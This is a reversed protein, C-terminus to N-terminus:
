AHRKAIHKHVHVSGRLGLKPRLQHFRPLLSPSNAKPHIPHSFGQFSQERKQARQKKPAPCDKGICCEMLSGPQEGINAGDDKPFTYAAGACPSFFPSAPGMDNIRQSNQCVNGNGALIDPFACEQDFLEINCGTVATGDISCTIPVSYGDVYSVDIDGKGPGYYSGEIKSNDSHHDKGISIRGAWGSPVSYSASDVIGTPQPNGVFGPAGENCGFSISLPEGYKNEIAITLDGSGGGYSPDPLPVVPAPTIVSPIIPSPGDQPIPLRQDFSGGAHDVPQESVVGLEDVVLRMQARALLPAGHLLWTAYTLSIHM